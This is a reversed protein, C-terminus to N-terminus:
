SAPHETSRRVRRLWVLAAARPVGLFAAVGWRLGADPWHADIAAVTGGILLVVILADILAHRVRREWKSM